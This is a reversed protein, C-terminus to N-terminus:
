ARKQAAQNPKATEYAVIADLHLPRAATEEGIKKHSLVHTKFRDVLDSPLMLDGPWYPKRPSKWDGYYHPHKYIVELYEHAASLLSAIEEVRTESFFEPVSFVYVRLKFLDEGLDKVRRFHRKRKRKNLHTYRLCDNLEKALLKYADLLESSYRFRRSSDFRQNRSFSQM